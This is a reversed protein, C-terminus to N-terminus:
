NKELGSCNIKGWKEKAAEIELEERTTM